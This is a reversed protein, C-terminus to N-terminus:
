VVAKWFDAGRGPLALEATKMAQFCFYCGVLLAISVVTLGISAAMPIWSNPAFGTAAGTATAVAITVYLRLLSMAQQDTFYILQLLATQRARADDLAVQLQDTDLM